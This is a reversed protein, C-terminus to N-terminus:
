VTFGYKRRARGEIFRPFIWYLWHAFRMLPPVFVPRTNRTDIAHISIEAVKEPSLGSIEGTAINRSSPDFTARESKPDDEHLMDVAGARFNGQVTSPLVYSWDINPHEISLSQYLLLSAGKTSGYLSRTPAPVVAALSSLLHVSPLASTQSLFPIFTVAAILPGFYNSQLAASATSVVRAIGETDTQTIDTNESLTSQVTKSRSIFLSQSRSRSPPNRCAIDLLPRVASIGAAVILTDLGQWENLLVNRLRIMASADTMDGVFGLIKTDLAEQSVPSVDKCEEVVESVKNDRRGVVCVYAGRKAYKKAIVRGIGSSSGLVVVRERDLPITKTRDKNTKKSLIKHSTYLLPPLLLLSWPSLSPLPSM